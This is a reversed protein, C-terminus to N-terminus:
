KLIKQDHSIKSIAILYWFAPNTIQSQFLIMFVLCLNRKLNYAKNSNDNNILISSSTNKYKLKDGKKEFFTNDKFIETVKIDDYQNKYNELVIFIDDM